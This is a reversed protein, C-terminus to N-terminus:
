LDRLIRFAVNAYYGGTFPHETPALDEIFYKSGILTSKLKRGVTCCSTGTLVISSATRRLGTHSTTRSQFFEGLAQLARDPTQNRPPQRGVLVYPLTMCEDDPSRTRSFRHRQVGENPVIQLIASSKAAISAPRTMTAHKAREWCLRTVMRVTLCSSLAAMRM